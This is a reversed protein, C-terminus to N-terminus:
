TTIDMSVVWPALWHGLQAGVFGIWFPIMPPHFYSVLVLTILACFLLKYTTGAYLRRVIRKADRASATRCFLIVFLLGPLLVSVGGLCVAGAANSGWFFAFLAVLLVVAAQVALFRYAIQRVRLTIPSVGRLGMREGISKRDIRLSYIM